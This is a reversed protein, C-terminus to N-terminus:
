PPTYPEFNIVGFLHDLVVEGVTSSASPEATDYPNTLSSPAAQM